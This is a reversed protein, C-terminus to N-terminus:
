SALLLVVFATLVITVASGFKVMGIFGNYTENAADMHEDAM